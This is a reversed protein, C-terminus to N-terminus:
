GARAAGEAREHRPIRCAAPLHPLVLLRIWVPAARQHGGAVHSEVTREVAPELRHIGPRSLHQRLELDTGTDDTVRDGVAAGVAPLVHRHIGTEAPVPCQQRAINTRVVGGVHARRRIEELIDRAMGALPAHDPDETQSAASARRVHAMATLTTTPTGRPPM